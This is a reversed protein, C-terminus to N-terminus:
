RRWGGLAGHLAVEEPFLTTGRKRTLFAAQDGKHTNHARTAENWSKRNQERHARAM